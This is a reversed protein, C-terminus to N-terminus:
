LVLQTGPSSILSLVNGGIVGATYWAARVLIPGGLLTIPAIVAGMVGCHAMWALQKAGIGEKYPIGHVLMGTGIMAAFGVGM